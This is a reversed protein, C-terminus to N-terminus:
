WLFPKVAMLPPHCDITEGATARVIVTSMDSQEITSPTCTMACSAAVNAAKAAMM